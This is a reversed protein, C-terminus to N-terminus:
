NLTLSSCDSDFVLMSELSLEELVSLVWEAVKAGSSNITKRSKSKNSSSGTVCTLYSSALYNSSIICRATLLSDSRALSSGIFDRMLFYNVWRWRCVRGKGASRSSRWICLSLDIGNFSNLGSNISFKSLSNVCMMLFAFVM